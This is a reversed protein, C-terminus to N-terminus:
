NTSGIARYGLWGLVFLCVLELISRRYGFTSVLWLRLTTSMHAPTQLAVTLLGFDGPKSRFTYFGKRFPGSAKRKYSYNQLNKRM